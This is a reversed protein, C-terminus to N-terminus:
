NASCVPRMRLRKWMRWARRLPPSRAVSATRWDFVGEINKTTARSSADRKDGVGVSAEALLGGGLVEDDGGQLERFKALGVVSAGGGGVDGGQVLDECRLDVMGGGIFAFATQAVVEEGGETGDGIGENWSPAFRGCMGSGVRM